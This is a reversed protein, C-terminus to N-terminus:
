LIFLTRPHPDSSMDREKEGCNGMSFYDFTKKYSGTNTKWGKDIFNLSM